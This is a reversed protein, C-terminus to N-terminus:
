CATLMGITLIMKLAASAVQEIYQLLRRCVQIQAELRAADGLQTRLATNVDRKLLEFQTLINDLPRPLSSEPSPPASM